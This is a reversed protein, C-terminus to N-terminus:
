CCCSCNAELVSLELLEPDLQESNPLPPLAVLLCRLRLRPRLPLIGM